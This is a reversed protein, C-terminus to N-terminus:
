WFRANVAQLAAPLASFAEKKIAAQARSTLKLAVKQESNCATDM